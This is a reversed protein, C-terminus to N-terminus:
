GIALFKSRRQALLEDPGLQSFGDLEEILAGKLSGIAGEPDRHAGGLPEPV